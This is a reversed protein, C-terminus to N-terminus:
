PKRNHREGKLKSRSEIGKGENGSDKRKRKNEKAKAAETAEEEARRKAELAVAEDGMRGLREFMDIEEDEGEEEEEEEEFPLIVDRVVATSSESAPESMAKMTMQPVHAPSFPDPQISGRLSLM